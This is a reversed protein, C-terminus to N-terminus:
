LVVEVATALLALTAFGFYALLVLVLAQRVTARLGTM